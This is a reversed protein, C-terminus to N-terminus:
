DGSLIDRMLGVGFAIILAILAIAGLVILITLGIGIGVTAATAEANKKKYNVKNYIQIESISDNHLIVKGTSDRLIGSVRVHMEDFPYANTDQAINTADPNVKKYCFREPPLPKLEGTIATNDNNLKYDNLQWATDGEHVIVYPNNQTLQSLVMARNSGPGFKSVKFSGPTVCSELFFIHVSILILTAWRFNSKVLNMKNLIM